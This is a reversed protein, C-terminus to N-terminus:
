KDKNQNHGQIGKKSEVTRGNHFRHEPEMSSQERQQKEPSRVTPMIPGGTVSAVFPKKDPDREGENDGTEKEKATIAEVRKKPPSDRKPSHKRRPSVSRGPTKRSSDYKRKEYNINNGGRTTYRSLKGIKILDEIVDKLHICDETDHGASCHFKYFKTTDTRPNERIERPPRVGVEAFEVNACEQLITERSTNLPTYGIYNGRPTKRGRDEKNKEERKS